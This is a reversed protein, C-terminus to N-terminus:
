VASTATQRAERRGRLWGGLAGFAVGLLAYILAMIGLDAPLEAAAEVGRAEHVVVIALAFLVGGIAGRAMGERAGAHEFGANIGGLIGLAVVVQYAVDSEGLLWGCIAGFMIPLVVLSVVQISRPRERLLPPPWM